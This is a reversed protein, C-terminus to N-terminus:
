LRLVVTFAHELGRVACISRDRPRRFGFHCSFGGGLCRTPEVGVEPVVM